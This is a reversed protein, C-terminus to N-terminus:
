GDVIEMGWVVRGFPTFPEKDHGPSNDTLNFFVQTSRGNQTAFAFCRHRTHQIAQLPRRSYHSQALGERHRPRRQDRVADLAGQHPPLFSHRITVMGCWPIFRDAGRPAWERTVEIDVVGKSTDLRVTSVAPAPTSFEPADPRLLPARADQSAPLPTMSAALSMAVIATAM